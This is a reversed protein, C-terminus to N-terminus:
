CYGLIQQYNYIYKNDKYNYNNFKLTDRMGCRDKAHQYVDSDNTVIINNYLPMM